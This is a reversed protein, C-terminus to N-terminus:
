ATSTASRARWTAWGAPSTAWGTRIVIMGWDWQNPETTAPDRWPAPTFYWAETGPDPDIKITSSGFPSSDDGRARRTDAGDSWGLPRVVGADLM